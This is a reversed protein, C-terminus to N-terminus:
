ASVSLEGAEIMAEEEEDTLVAAAALSISRDHQKLMDRLMDSLPAMMKFNDNSFASEHTIKLTGPTIRDAKYDIIVEMNIKSRDARKVVYSGPELLNLLEVEERTCSELEVLWPIMMLCKLKPKKYDELKSGRRDFVSVNPIVTNSPRFTRRSEELSDRATDVQAKTMRELAFTLKEIAKNETGNGSGNAAITALLTLAREIRDLTGALRDSGPDAAPLSPTAGMETVVEEVTPESEPDAISGVLDEAPANGTARLIEDATMSGIDKNLDRKAM